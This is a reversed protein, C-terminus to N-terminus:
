STPFAATPVALARAVGATVRFDQMYCPLSNTAGGFNGLTYISTSKGLNGSRTGSVYSSGNRGVTVLNAGDRVVQLFYWTSLSFPTSGTNIIHSSQFLEM